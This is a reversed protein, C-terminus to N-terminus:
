FYLPPLFIFHRRMKAVGSPSDWKPSTSIGVVSVRDNGFPAGAALQYIRANRKRRLRALENQEYGQLPARLPSEYGM